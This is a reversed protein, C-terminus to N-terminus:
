TEHAPPPATHLLAGAMKTDVSEKSIPLFAPTKDPIGALGPRPNGRDGAGRARERINRLAGPGASRADPGRRSRRTRPGTIVSNEPRRQRGGGARASEARETKRADVPARDGMDSGTTKGAKACSRDAVAPRLM